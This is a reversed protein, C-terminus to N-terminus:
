LYCSIFDKVVKPPGIGRWTNRNRHSFPVAIKSWDLFMTQQYSLICTEPFDPKLLLKLIRNRAYRSKQFFKENKLQRACVLGLFNLSM